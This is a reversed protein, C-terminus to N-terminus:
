DTPQMSRHSVGPRAPPPEGAPTLDLAAHATLRQRKTKKAKKQKKKAKKAAKREKRDKEEASSASEDDSPM